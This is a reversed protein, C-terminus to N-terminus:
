NDKKLRLVVVGGVIGVVAGVCVDLPYHMGVYTRSFGILFAFVALLVVILRNERLKWILVTVISMTSATHGSPFSNPETPTTLQRVHDLVVYPRPSHFALKLAAAIVGALILAYLCMKAIELYRDRKLYKAAAIAILCIALLSVFGGINSLGPMIADFIPNKLSNNLFYFMDINPNM